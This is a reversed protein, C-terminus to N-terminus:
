FTIKAGVQLNRPSDVTGNWMGFTPDGVGNDIPLVGPRQDYETFSHWNWINFAEVRLELAFRETLKTTKMIGFDENDYPFAHYNTVRPGQGLYFNFSSPPEFAAKNVLPYQPDWSGGPHTFPNAGPLVGPLCAAVGAVNCVSSYFFLPTGSQLHLVTSAAWGGVIKGVPGAQNLFRKGPGFPLEYVGSMTFLHPIDADSPAKNRQREYPSIWGSTGSYDSQATDANTLLKSWTYAALLYVGNSMRKEAKLQLSNYTSAGLNEDDGSIGNCYQPFPVLALAVTPACAKMQAAWGAYPAPVGDLSTMGPQFQDYLKNGMSLYSPNLTNIPDLASTLRLGHNGVYAASVYFNNTFQHEVTGNWQYARPLRDADFPRYNPSSLGNDFGATYFPPPTFNQPVGNQLVFAPQLGGLSSSWSVNENFGDTAIGGNWAPYYLQEFFLGAGGRLVTKPSLTYALGIRPGFGKHWISEPARAGFAASGYASNTGAFALTGLRGGADPNAAYPDFFSTKNNKEVSPEFVDWRIGLNVSLKSTAKWTDGLFLNFATQQPVFNTLTYYSVSASSVDGLLFSAMSNGSPIGLQGTNLDGFNFSGSANPQEATPYSARRYEGGMHLTHKGKVWTLMDNWVWTPRRTVFDGSAGYATYEQFGIYPEHSNPNFVGKIHPVQNVCCDSSNYLRSWLDLYGFAFHNLLNSKFTHDWNLRPLESYNPIRTQYTGIVLPMADQTFPLTGRYHWTPSIHDNEGIYMDGRVDWQDTEANLENALAHPSAYNASLGPRNPAPVYKLWGQALSAALRPDTACIVNPTTGNCGMFQQRTYPENALSTPLNPNYAPNAATTDPDFIPNPWESFNGQKMLGDPVTSIPTITGGRSRYEENNVFFYSKKNNTWFTPLFKIPGGIYGGIDNEIDVPRSGGGFSRANLVTNRLYEYGGGHFENTGAKTSTVIVAAPSSGYQVDYNATLVSIEGVAEPSIPFDYSMAIMGSQNLLGEQMSVGDMTAEDSGNQGGNFRASLAPMGSAGEVGPMLTVFNVASRQAGSVMLPLDTIVEKTVAGKVEASQYNLPSAAASVEITQVTAGLQLTVPVRVAENLNIIIGTQVFTQFGKAKVELRYTGQPLNPLTYSGDSSTVAKGVAASGEASVTVEAGPIVAGTQDTVSGSITANSSQAWGSAPLLAVLVIFLM